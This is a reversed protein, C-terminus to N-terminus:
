YYDMKIQYPNALCYIRRFQSTAPIEDVCFLTKLNNSRTNQNLRRQFELMSPDQVTMMALGSMLVDSTPYSFAIADDHRNDPVKDFVERIAPLLKSLRLTEIPRKM